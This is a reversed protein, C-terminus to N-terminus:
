RSKMNYKEKLFKKNEYMAKDAIQLVDKYYQGEEKIHYGRAVSFILEKGEYEVLSYLMAEDFRKMTEEFNELDEHLVIAIFEDGGVHFLLSSKFITPLVHGCRVILSCGYRHGYTDNTVKLNNVDMLVVAFDLNEGANIKQDIEDVAEVYSRENLLGTLEDNHSLEKLKKEIKFESFIIHYNRFAIIVVVLIFAAFLVINETLYDEKEFFIDPKRGITIFVPILSIIELGSFYFPDIVFTGAIFACILLYLIPSYGLSLDLCFAVTGWAILFAAYLHHLLGIRQDSIKGAKSLLLVLISLLSVFILTGQSIYFAIETSQSVIEPDFYWAITFGIGMAIIAIHFIVMAIRYRALYGGLITFLKHRTQKNLYSM